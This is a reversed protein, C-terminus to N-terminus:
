KCFQACVESDWSVFQGSLSQPAGLSLAAAVYGSEEPKVLTNEAHRDIFKKYDDEKMHAEGQGRVVAQMETDVAGPRLAVCVVDPEEQALTRCLSNMAAKSTNYPGWGAVNGTAASSSVFVVRGGLESKRLVPLTVRLTTVLSFFNVDFLEKWGDLPISPDSIKGMPTLTGANLILGDLHSFRKLTLDVANSVASADIVSGQFILLSHNYTKALELLEPTESRQLTAVNAQFEELLIKTIALGIGKSAGTLFVVPTRSM